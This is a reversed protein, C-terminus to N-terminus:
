TVRTILGGRVTVTAFWKRDYPSPRVVTYTGDGKYQPGFMSTEIFDPARGVAAEATVICPQGCDQPCTNQTEGCM